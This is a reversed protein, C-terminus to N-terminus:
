TSDTHAGRLSPVDSRREVNDLAPRFIRRCIHQQDPSATQPPPRFKPSLMPITTEFTDSPKLGLDVCSFIFVRSLMVPATVFQNASM